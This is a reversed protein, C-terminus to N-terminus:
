ATRVAGFGLDNEPNLLYKITKMEAMFDGWAVKVEVEVPYGSRNVAFVDRSKYETAAAQCGGQYLLYAMVHTKVRASTM